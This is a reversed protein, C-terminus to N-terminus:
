NSKLSVSLPLLVFVQLDSFPGRLGLLGSNGREVFLLNKSDLLLFSNEVPNTASQQRVGKKYCLPFVLQM